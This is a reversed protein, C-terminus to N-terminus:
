DLYITNTAGAYAGIVFSYGNIYRASYAKSVTLNLCNVSDVQEGSKYSIAVPAGQANFYVPRTESGVASALNLGGAKDASTAAVAAYAREAPMDVYYQNDSKQILGIAKPIGKDTGSAPIYVPQHIGGAGNALKEAVTASGATGVINISYKGNGDTPLTPQKTALAASISNTGAYNPDYAMATGVIGGDGLKNGASHYSSLNYLKWSAATNTNGSFTAYVEKMPNSTDDSSYLTWGGNPGVGNVSYSGLKNFVMLQYQKQIVFFVDVHWLGGSYICVAQVADTSIASSRLKWSINIIPAHTSDVTSQMKVTIMVIGYDTTQNGKTFLHLILSNDGHASQTTVLSDPFSAIRHLPYTDKNGQHEIINSRHLGSAYGSINATIRNIDTRYMLSDTYGRLTEVSTSFWLHRERNDQGVQTGSVNTATTATAANGSVNATITNTSPNLTIDADYVAETAAGSTPSASATALIKYNADDTTKATATVKTDTNTNLDQWSISTTGNTIWAIKPKNAQVYCLVVYRWDSASAYRNCYAELMFGANTTGTPKDSITASGGDTKTYFRKYNINNSALSQVQALITTSQSELSVHAIDVKKDLATKIGVSTVANTSGSTPTTDMTTATASITGGTESIASIYKGAGGVSPATLAQIATSIDGSKAFLEFTGKPTLAKTTTSGDFSLNSRAVKNNDADVIVLKDGSAVTTDSTITGANTINGHTHSTPVAGTLEWNTGDYVFEYVGNAALDGAAALNNGKVKIAKAGTDSVNLTLSAVALTNTNTFKIRVHVGTTLVFGPITVTKVASAGSSCTAYNGAQTGYIMGTVREDGSVLTDTLQAM